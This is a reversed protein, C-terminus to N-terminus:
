FDEATANTRFRREAATSRHAGIRNNASERADEYGCDCALLCLGDSNTIVSACNSKHGSPHTENGGSEEPSFMDVNKGQYTGKYCWGFGSVKKLGIEALAPWLGDFDIKPSQRIRYLVIDCDKRAGQKYLLGGTLAIHCGFRPCIKEIEVCLDIADSWLWM